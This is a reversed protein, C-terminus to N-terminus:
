PGPNQAVTYNITNSGSGSAGSNITIWNDNSTATWNCGSSTTVTISGTGGTAPIISGIPSFTLSCGSQTIAFQLGAITLHGTRESNGPNSEVMYGISGAGTGTSGSPITIWSDNSVATWSCGDPVLVNLSGTGGSTGLYTNTPSITLLCNTGDQNVT